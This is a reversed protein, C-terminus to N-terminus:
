FIGSVIYSSRLYCPKNSESGATRCSGGMLGGLGVSTLCSPDNRAGSKLSPYPGCLSIIRGISLEAIKTALALVRM